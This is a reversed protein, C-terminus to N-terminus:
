EIITINLVKENFIKENIFADVEEANSVNLLYDNNPTSIIISMSDFNEDIISNEIEILKPGGGGDGDGNVLKSFAGKGIVVKGGGGSSSGGGGGGEGGALTLFSLSLLM